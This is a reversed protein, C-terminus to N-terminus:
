LKKLENIIKKQKNQNIKTGSKENMIVFNDEVKEGLTTIRASFISVENKLFIKAIKSLLSPQDLTELTVLHGDQNKLHTIEVKTLHSFVKKNNLKNKSAKPIVSSSLQMIIKEEIGYKDRQTLNNGLIKHRCIFTNLAFNGDNTTQINADITELSLKEFITVTKFFLGSQNPTFIFIEMLNKRKM